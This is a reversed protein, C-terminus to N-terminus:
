TVRVNWGAFPKVTACSPGGDRGTGPVRAELVSDSNISVHDIMEWTIGRLPIKLRRSWCSDAQGAYTGIDLYVFREGPPGQVFPGLFNPAADGREGRVRVTFNFQMDRSGSRQTQITAYDSGRGRQLGFDVGAPPKEVVIRLTVEREM